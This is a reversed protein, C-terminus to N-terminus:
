PGFYRSKLYFSYIIYLWDQNPSVKNINKSLKKLLCPFQFRSPLKRSPIRCNIIKEERYLSKNIILITYYNYLLKRTSWWVQKLYFRLKKIKRIKEINWHRTPYQFQDVLLMTWLVCQHHLTKIKPAQYANMRKQLKRHRLWPTYDGILTSLAYKYLINFEIKYYFLFHSSFLPM